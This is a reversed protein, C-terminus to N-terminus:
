PLVSTKAFGNKALADQAALLDFGSEYSLLVQPNDLTGEEAQQDLQVSVVHDFGELTRKVKSFCGYECHMGDVRLTLTGADALVGASAATATPAASSGTAPAAPPQALLYAIGLAILATVLYISSRM